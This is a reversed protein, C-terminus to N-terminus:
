LSEWFKCLSDNEPVLRALWQELDRRASPDANENITLSASTHMLHVVALGNDTGAKRVLAAVQDTVEYMGQGKTHINIIDTPM